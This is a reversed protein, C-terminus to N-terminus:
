KRSSKGLALRCPNFLMLLDTRVQLYAINMKDYQEITTFLEDVTPMDQMERILVGFLTTIQLHAIFPRVEEKPQAKGSLFTKQLQHRWERVKKAEPDNAVAAPTSNTADTNSM